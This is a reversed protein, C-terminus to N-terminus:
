RKGRAGIITARRFVELQNLEQNIDEDLIQFVVHEATNPPIDARAKYSKGTVKFTVEIVYIKDNGNYVNLMAFKGSVIDNDMSLKSIQDNSLNFPIGFIWPKATSPLFIIIAIALTFLQLTKM